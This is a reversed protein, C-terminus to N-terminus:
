GNRRRDLVWTDKSGGGRLQQRDDRGAAAAYRTLGGPMTTPRGRRRQRRVPAPRRPAPAPRGEFVTPHTSLPVTEQAVFREPRRRVLGIARRREAATARPMITVGHGGFGDRPKIVLEDLRAM